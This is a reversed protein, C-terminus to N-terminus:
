KAIVVSNSFRKNVFFNSLILKNSLSYCEEETLPRCLRMSDNLADIGLGRWMVNECGILNLMTPYIDMQYITDTITRHQTFDPSYIILPVFGEDIPIPQHSNYIYNITNKDKKKFITHDGTIIIVSNQLISDNNFRDFFTAFCKDTYHLANLYDHMESPMQDSFSLPGNQGISFPVHSSITIALLFDHNDSNQCFNRMIFQDDWYVRASTDIMDNIGYRENMTKQNWANTWTTVIGTSKYLKSISPYNNQGYRMCAAGNKIPLLGSLVIMQGDGSGGAQVQRKVNPFFTCNNLKIFNILNPTIINGDIGKECITWSEFSEVLFVYLNRRPTISISERHVIKIIEEDTLKTNREHYSDIFYNIISIPLYTIVSYHTIWKCPETTNGFDIISWFPNLNSFLRTQKTNYWQTENKKHYFFRYPTLLEVFFLVIIFAKANKKYTSPNLIIVVVFLITTIPFLIHELKFLGFLENGMGRLNGVNLIDHVSLLNAFTNQYLILSVSFLDIIILLVLTWWVRKTIFIFSAAVIAPLM